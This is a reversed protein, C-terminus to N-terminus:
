KQAARLFACRSAKPKNSCILGDSITAARRRGNREVKETLPKAGLTRIGFNARSKRRGTIDDVHFFGPRRTDAFWGVPRRM